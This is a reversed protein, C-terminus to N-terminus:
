SGRYVTYGYRSLLLPVHLRAEGAIEFTVTVEPFFGSDLYEGTDFVLRHRGPAAQDGGALDAIRGDGDTTGGGISEWSTGDRQAQLQVPVGQAPRGTVTDLVHTSVSTM